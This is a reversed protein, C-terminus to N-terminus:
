RRFGRLGVRVTLCAAWVLLVLVLGDILVFSEIVVDFGWLKFQGQRLIELTLPSFVFVPVATLLVLPAGQGWFAARRKARENERAQPKANTPLEASAAAVLSPYRIGFLVTTFAVFLTLSQFADLSQSHLSESSV